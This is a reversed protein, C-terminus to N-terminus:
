TQRKNSISMTIGFRPSRIQPNDERIAITNNISHKILAKFVSNSSPLVLSSQIIAIINRGMMPGM